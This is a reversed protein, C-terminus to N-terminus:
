FCYIKFQIIHLSLVLFSFNTLLMLNKTSYHALFTSIILSREFVDSNLYLISATPMHEICAIPVDDVELM